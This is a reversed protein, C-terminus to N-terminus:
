DTSTDGLLYAAVASLDPLIADPMFPLTEPHAALTAGYGTQVLITRCGLARGPELDSMKDGVAVCPTQELHLDALAQRFLAPKPKRCECQADPHHPCVYIADVRAGQAALAAVLAANVAAVDEATFYGRGIGSQNTIIVVAWGAANFRRIAEAAGPLLQLGAPDSLYNVEVNVTGDRDLFLVHRYPNQVSM